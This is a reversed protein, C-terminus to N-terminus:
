SEEQSRSRVSATVPRAATRESFRWPDFAAHEARARRGDILDAVAVATEVSLLVGHRHTGTAAILGPAIRGLLPANDPTGPRARAITEVLELEAVAPVLEAADRLLQLVAGASVGTRADERESAGIVIEGDDRPVLYVARAQVRGRVVHSLFPTLSAPARLRLVDGYVPRIPLRLGTPLGGLRTSAGTALVVEHASIRETGDILVGCVRPGDWVLATATAPRVVARASGELAALYASVLRRPDVQHDSEALFAGAIGPSLLDELRRAQMPALPRVSLGLEEQRRRLQDGAARDSAGSAVVLTSSRRYGTAMGSARELDAMVQAYREAAPLSLALLAEEEFAFESVAGLMGAAARSAGDGPRPDLVTVRHGRELSRWAAALGVVGGGVVVVDSVMM